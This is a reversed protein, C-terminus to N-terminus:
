ACKTRIEEDQPIAEYLLYSLEPLCGCFLASYEELRHEYDAAIGNQALAQIAAMDSASFPNYVRVSSQYRYSWYRTENVALKGAEDATFCPPHFDNQSACKM